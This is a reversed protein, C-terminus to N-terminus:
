DLKMPQQLCCCLAQGPLGQLGRGLSPSPSKKEQKPRLTRIGLQARVQNLYGVSVQVEFEERLRSQLVHSPTQPAQHCTTVLWQRIPERLKYVSGHRGDDLATEGLENVRRQLRYATARSMSLGAVAIAEQWSTGQNMLAVVQAKAQRSQEPHRSKNM